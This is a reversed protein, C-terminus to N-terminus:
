LVGNDISHYQLAIEPRRLQLVGLAEEQNQSRCPDVIAVRQVIERVGLDTIGVAVSHSLDEVGPAIRYEVEAPGWTIHRFHTNRLGCLRGVPLNSGITKIRKM